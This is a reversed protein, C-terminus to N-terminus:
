DDNLKCDCAAWCGFPRCSPAVVAVLPRRQRRCREVARRQGEDNLGCSTVVDFKEGIRLRRWVALQGTRAEGGCIEVVDVGHDLAILYM